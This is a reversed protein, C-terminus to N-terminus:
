SKEKIPLGVFRQRDGSRVQLLVAKRGDKKAQRVGSVVDNPGEVPKGGVAVIYDGAKLGKEAAKSDPDVDTILVGEEDAAGPAKSTSLKLGLESMEESVSPKETDEELKALKDQGPFTGLEVDVTKRDGYRYVVVAAKSKPTMDAVTRALDRSDDIQEENVRVIVDGVKIDSKSAPGGETIKTVQAGKPKDLGLGDAIDDTVDQITVGLWGRSVSGQAKLQEIVHEALSAPVAFAIGVNGGSPSWIATNIGVVEGDLNFAPGGSNGKNVAADIQLFDYPSNGIDRGRASVIGATVTGGLGFPNGVALVWDGVRAEKESFKVFEYPGSGKLKLLALDTRQDGGILDADVKEGSDLVVQIEEAEGAVHFNTVVYGDASIIFGAGQSLSPARRQKFEPNAGFRKFFEKLPHDDPLGKFLDPANVVKSESKVQVSVVAPKVRDVLDAFSLPARGYATQISDFGGTRPEASANPVCNTFVSAIIGACLVVAASIHAPRLWRRGAGRQRIGQRVVPLPRM